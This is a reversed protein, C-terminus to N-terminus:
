CTGAKERKHGWCQGPHHVRMLLLLLLLVPQGCTDPATHAPCGKPPHKDARTAACRALGRM